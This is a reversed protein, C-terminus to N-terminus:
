KQETGLYFIGIAPKGFGPAALNIAMVTLFFKVHGFIKGSYTNQSICREIGAEGRYFKPV